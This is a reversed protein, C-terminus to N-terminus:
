HSGSAAQAAAPAARVGWASPEPSKLRAGAPVLLAVAALPMAWGAYTFTWYQAVLQLGMLLAGGLAATQPLDLERPRRALFAAGAVLVAELVPKVPELQPYQGWISLFSRRHLQFGVVNDYVVGIGSPHVVALLAAVTALLAAITVVRARATGRAVLTILALPALKTAVAVGLAAGRLAPRAFAHLVGVIALAVLGDNTSLAVNLFTWPCAAFALALLLGLRQGEEGSRLRRGLRWLAVITLLDVALATATGATLAGRGWGTMPWILSAPVYALYAAPGYTDLHGTDSVYLPWGHVISDAGFVGAYTVDTTQGLLLHFGTRLGVAALLLAGLVRTAPAVVAARGRGLGVVALRAALYALAPYVLPFALLPHGRDYLAFPIGLALVAMLDGNRWCLLRRRDALAALFIAALALMALEVETKFTNMAGTDARPWAWPGPELVRRARDEVFVVGVTKDASVLRVRWLGADPSTAIARAGPATRLLARGQDSDLAVGAAQTATLRFHAPPSEARAPASAVLTVLLALLLAVRARPV